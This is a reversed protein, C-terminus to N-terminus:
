KYLYFSVESSMIYNNPEPSISHQKDLLAINSVAIATEDQIPCPPSDVLRSNNREM